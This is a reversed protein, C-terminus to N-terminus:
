IVIFSGLTFLVAIIVLATWLVRSGFYIQTGDLRSFPILNWFAYYAAFKSLTELGPVWYAILSVLLVAIIGAAGILSTHWDTMETFSYHGFRKAARRKLATAEYTFITLPKLFGFSIITILLPAILGMLVPNKLRDGKKLGYRSFQWIRNEVGADLRSAMMKKAGINATIIIFSFLIALGFGILNLSILSNFGIVLSAIVIGAILQLTEGDKM